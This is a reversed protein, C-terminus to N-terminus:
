DDKEYFDGESLENLMKDWESIEEEYHKQIKDWDINYAKIANSRKVLYVYDAFKQGKEMYGIIKHNLEVIADVSMGQKIIELWMIEIYATDNSLVEIGKDRMAKTLTSTDIVKEELKFRGKNLESIFAKKFYSNPNTKTKFYNLNSEFWAKFKNVDIEQTLMSTIDDCNINLSSNSICACIQEKCVILVNSYM